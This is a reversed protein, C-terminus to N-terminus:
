FLSLESFAFEAIATIDVSLSGPNSDTEPNIWMQIRIDAPDSWFHQPNIAKDAYTVEGLKTFNPPRSCSRSYLFDRIFDRIFDRALSRFVSGSDM